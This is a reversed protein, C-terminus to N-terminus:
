LKPHWEIEEIKFDISLKRALVFLYDSLRNLYQIVKKPVYLDLAMKIVIREARRCVTRAIHCISVVPHGGPLIFAQLPPINIEIADIENELAVIDKDEIQPLGSSNIDGNYSLIAAIVMLKDQISILFNKEHKEIPQDRLLGVFAILEDITGYADIRIDAKSVRQGGILSTDGKDGTKTYIKM